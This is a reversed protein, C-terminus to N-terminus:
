STLKEWAKKLSQSLTEPSISKWECIQKAVLALDSLRSLSSLGTKLTYLPIDPADTEILITELPIETILKQYRSQNWPRLIHCAFSVFGGYTAIQMAIDRNQSYAHVVFGPIKNIAPKLLPFLRHWAKRCHINLPRGLEIAMRIQTAFITEQIEQSPKEFDLGCEGVFSTHNKLYDFLQSEWQPPLNDIYWPHVGFAPFLADDQLSLSLVKEWDEPGTSCVVWRSIPIEKAQQLQQPLDTIRSDHLHCHADWMM